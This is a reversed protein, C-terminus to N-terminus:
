VIHTKALQRENLVARGKPKLTSTPCIWFEKLIEFSPDVTPPKVVTLIIASLLSGVSM